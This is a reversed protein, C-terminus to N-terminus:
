YQDTKFSPKGGADSETDPLLGPPGCATDFGKFDEENPIVEFDHTERRQIAALHCRNTGKHKKGVALHADYGTAMRASLITPRVTAVTAVKVNTVPAAKVDSIAAVTISCDYVPTDSLSNKSDAVTTAVADAKVNTVPAVKVDSIAAVTIGRDPKYVPKDSLSTKSDAKVLEITGGDPQILTAQIGHDLETAKNEMDPVVHRVDHVLNTPQGSTFCATMPDWFSRFIRHIPGVKLLDIMRKPRKQDPRVKKEPWHHNISINETRSCIKASSCCVSIMTMTWTCVTACLVALMLLSLSHAKTMRALEAPTMKIELHDAWKEFLVAMPWQDMTQPTRPDSPEATYTKNENFTTNLWMTPAEPNNIWMAPAETPSSDWNGWDENAEFLSVSRKGRDLLIGKHLLERLINILSAESLVATLGVGALAYGLALVVIVAGKYILLKISIEGETTRPSLLVLTLQTTATWLHGLTKECCTEPEGEECEKEWDETELGFCERLAPISTAFCWSAWSIVLLTVLTVSLVILTTGEGGTLHQPQPLYQVIDEARSHSTDKETFTSDDHIKLIETSLDTYVSDVHDIDGITLARIPRDEPPKNTLLDSDPKLEHGTDGSSDYIAVGDIITPMTAQVSHGSEDPGQDAAPAAIATDMDPHGSVSYGDKSNVPIVLTLVSTLSRSDVDVTPDIIDAMVNNPPLSSPLNRELNRELSGPKGHIEMCCIFMLLLSIWNKKM